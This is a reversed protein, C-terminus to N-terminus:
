KTLYRLFARANQPVAAMGCAAVAIPGERPPQEKCQDDCCGGVYPVTDVGFPLRSGGTALPSSLFVEDILDRLAQQRSAARAELRSQVLLPIMRPAEKRLEAKDDGPKEADTGVRDLAALFAPSAKQRLATAREKLRAGGTGHALGRIAEPMKLWTEQYNFPLGDQAKGEADLLILDHSPTAEPVHQRLTPTELCVLVTEAFLERIGPEGQNLFYILCHGPSHRWEKDDPIRLIICPKNEARMRSLADALPKPPAAPLGKGPSLVGRVEQGALSSLGVVTSGAAGILFSRRDIKM